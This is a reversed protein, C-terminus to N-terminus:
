HKNEFEINTLIRGSTSIGTKTKHQNNPPPSLLGREKEKEKEKKKKKKYTTTERGARLV